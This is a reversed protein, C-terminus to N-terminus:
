TATRGRLELDEPFCAERARKCLTSKRAVSSFRKLSTSGISFVVLNSSCSARPQSLHCLPRVSYPRSNAKIVNLKEFLLLRGFQEPTYGKWDLVCSILNVLADNLEFKKIISNISAMADQLSHVTMKLDVGQEGTLDDQRWM